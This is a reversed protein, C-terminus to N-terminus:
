MVGCSGSFSSHSVGGAANARHETLVASGDPALSFLLTGPGDEFLLTLPAGAARPAPLATLRTDGREFAFGGDGDAMLDFPVGDHPECGIEPACVLTFSCTIDQAVAACPLAALLVPLM